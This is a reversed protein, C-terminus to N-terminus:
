VIRSRLLAVDTKTLPTGARLKADIKALRAALRGLPSLKGVIKKKAKAMQGRSWFPVLASPGALAKEFGAAFCVPSM